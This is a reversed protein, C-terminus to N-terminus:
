RDAFDRHIRQKPKIKNKDVRAVKHAAIKDKQKPKNSLSKIISKRLAEKNIGQQHMKQSLVLCAERMNGCDIDLKELNGGKFIYFNTRDFNERLNGGNTEVIITGEDLYKTKENIIHGKFMDNPCLALRNIDELKILKHEPNWDMTDFNIERM